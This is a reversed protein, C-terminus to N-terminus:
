KEGKDDFIGQEELKNYEDKAYLNFFGRQGPTLQMERWRTVGMSDIGDAEEFYFTKSAIRTESDSINFRRLNVTIRFTDNQKIIYKNEM